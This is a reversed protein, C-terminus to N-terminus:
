RGHGRVQQTLARDIPYNHQNVRSYVTRYSIGIKECWEALSHTEGNITVIQSGFPEPTFVRTKTLAKEPPWGSVFIRSHALKYPVDLEDCWVYLPKSVGHMEVIQMYRRNGSQTKATAWRCNEPYYGKDNDIRDITTGKPRVGMDRLFNEFVYWQECVKIGRGGYNQYAANDKNDCRQFMGAWSNYTQTTTGGSANGHKTMRSITMERRMCGCSKSVGNKLTSAFVVKNTGCDCVCSWRTNGNIKSHFELVTWRSFMKGSLDEHKM